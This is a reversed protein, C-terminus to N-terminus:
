LRPCGVPSSAQECINEAAIRRPDPGGVRIAHLPQKRSISIHFQIEGAGRTVDPLLAVHLQRFENMSAAKRPPLVRRHLTHQAQLIEISGPM